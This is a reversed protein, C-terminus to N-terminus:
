KIGFVSRELYDRYLNQINEATDAIRGVQDALSKIADAHRDIAAAQVFEPPVTPSTRARDALDAAERLLKEAKARAAQALDEQRFKELEEPSFDRMEPIEDM